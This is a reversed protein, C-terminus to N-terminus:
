ESKTQVHCECDIEDWSCTSKDPNTIKAIFAQFDGVKPMPLEKKLTVDYMIISKETSDPPTNLRIRPNSQIVEKKMKRPPTKPPSRRRVPPPPSGAPLRRPNQQPRRNTRSSRHHDGASFTVSRQRNSM